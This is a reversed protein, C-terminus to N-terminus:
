LNVNGLRIRNITVRPQVGSAFWPRSPLDSISVAFVDESESDPKPYPLGETRVIVLKGAFLRVIRADAWIQKPSFLLVSGNPIDNLVGNRMAAVFASRGVKDVSHNLVGVVVINSIFTLAATIAFCAGLASWRLEVQNFRYSLLSAVIYSLIIALGIEEFLGQIYVNGFDTVVNQYRVSAALMAAPCAILIVGILITAKVQALVTQELKTIQRWLLYFLAAISIAVPGLTVINMFSWDAELFLTPHTLLYSLPAAAFINVAFAHGFKMVDLSITAGDYAALDTVRLIHRTALYTSFLVLIWITSWVAKSRPFNRAFIIVGDILIAVFALEYTLLGIAFVALSALLHWQSGGNLYRLLLSAQVMVITLTLPVLLPFGLIPDYWARMQVCFTAILLFLLAEKNSQTFRRLFDATAGLCVLYGVLSIAKAFVPDTYTYFWVTYTVAISVPYPRGIRTWSWATSSVLRYLSGYTTQVWEPTLANIIDDGILGCWLAPSVVILALAFVAVTCKIIDNAIGREM